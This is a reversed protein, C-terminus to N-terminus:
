IYHINKETVLIFKCDRIATIKIKDINGEKWKMDLVAGTESLDM